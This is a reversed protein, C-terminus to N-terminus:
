QVHNFTTLSNNIQNNVRMFTTCKAMDKINKSGIYTCTSRIGGLIDQITQKVYGKYPMKVCKGESSRHSAVGGSYKTMAATSSMGYFLKYQKENEVILEGGSEHHGALMSGLMVFDANGGFAKSVDSPYVCGGDSVIKGNVGHAADSCEIICSMQPMGVGTQTRTTCVSGSGIGCKVIDAGCNIILEEIMERSVVNGCIIILNPYEMSIDKVFDAFALMYGNAVDICIFMPNLETILEQLKIYDSPTIGTSIAYYNRNLIQKRSKYDDITYHKHFCTIMKFKSLENYMEFTGVTDMNSAMIPVGIWSIVGSKKHFIFERELNVESRSTLTSRKPRILVDSFDLKLEQEIKM